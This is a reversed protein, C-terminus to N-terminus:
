KDIVIQPELLGQCAYQRDFAILNFARRVTGFPQLPQAATRTKGLHNDEVESHRHEISPPKQCRTRTITPKCSNRDHYNRNRDPIIFSTRQSACRGHQGFREPNFSQEINNLLEPYKIARLSEGRSPTAIGETFNQYQGCDM